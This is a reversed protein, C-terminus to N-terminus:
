AHERGDPRSGFRGTAPGSEVTEILQALAEVTPDSLFAGLTVQAESAPAVRSLIMSATLSDGGLELLNEDIGIAPVELVESWVAAIRAQTATRPRLRVTVADAPRAATPAALERLAAYDIKGNPLLPLEPLTLFSSPVMYEPVGAAMFRRLVAPDFTRPQSPVVFAILSDTVEGKKPMVVAGDVDEHQVLLAEVEDLVVRYGRVKVERDARGIWTITGDPDRRGLDGTRFLRQGPTLPNPVFREATLARRHLYGRALQDGGIYIEGVDGPNVLNHARDLLFVDYAPLPRGIPLQDARAVKHWTVLGTSETLGYGNIISVWPMRASMADIVAPTTAGGGIHITDLGRLLDITADDSYRVLAELQSPVMVIRSTGFRSINMALRRIDKGEEEDVLLVPAGSVLPLLLDSIHGVVGISARQIDHARHAYGYLFRSMLARHTLAVGKPRGTSGSTYIVTALNDPDAGCRSADICEHGVDSVADISLCPVGLDDSALRENTMLVAPRADELIQKVRATPYTPDLPVYAGGAQLVALLAAVLEASKFGCVGVLVEPGVGHRRLETARRRAMRDLEAYSMSRDGHVVAIAHPQREVHAAFLEYINSAGPTMRQPV